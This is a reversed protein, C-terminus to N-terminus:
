CTPGSGRVVDVAGGSIEPGMSVDGGRVGPDSVVLEGVRGESLEVVSGAAAVVAGGRAVGLVLAM